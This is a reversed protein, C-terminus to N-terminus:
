PPDTSPPSDSKIPSIRAMDAYVDQLILKHTLEKKYYYMASDTNNQRDYWNGLLYAVYPEEPKLHYARKLFPGAEQARGFNRYAVSVMKNAYADSEESLAKYLLEYVEIRLRCYELLKANREKIQPPLDLNKIENLIKIVM